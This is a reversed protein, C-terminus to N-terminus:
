NSSQGRSLTFFFLEVSKVNSTADASEETLDLWSISIPLLLPVRVMWYPSKESASM